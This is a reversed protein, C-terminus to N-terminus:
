HTINNHKFHEYKSGDCIMNPGTLYPSEVGVVNLVGPYAVCYFYKSTFDYTRWQATSIRLWVCDHPCKRPADAM